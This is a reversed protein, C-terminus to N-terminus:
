DPARQRRQLDRRHDQLHRDGGHQHRPHRWWMEPHREGGRGGPGLRRVERRVPGDRRAERSRGEGHHDLPGPRGGQDLRQGPRRRFRHGRADAARWPQLRLATQGSPGRLRGPPRPDRPTGEPRRPAPPDRHPKAHHPLACRPRGNSRDHRRGRAALRQGAQAGAGPRRRGPDRRDRAGRRGGLLTKRHRRGPRWRRRLLPEGRDERFRNRRGPRPCRGRNRLAPVRLRRVGLGPGRLRLRPDERPTRRSQRRERRQPGPPAPRGDAGRLGSRRGRTGTGCGDGQDPRVSFRLHRPAPLCGRPLDM